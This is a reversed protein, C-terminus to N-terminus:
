DMPLGINYVLRTIRWDGSRRSLMWLVFRELDHAAPGMKYTTALSERTLALAERGGQSLSTHVVKRDIQYIANRLRKDLWEKLEDSDNFLIKWSAPQIKYDGNYATFSKECLGVISGSDGSEWGEAERKLLDAIEDVSDSSRTVGVTTSDGLNQVYGTVKWDDESKTFFWLRETWIPKTEGTQRNVVLGSDITTVIAKKQTGEERALIFPVTRETDYRHVRLDDRLEQEFSSFDEHLVSWGRPDISNHGEYVAMDRAYHSLIIDADGTRKGFKEANIAKRILITEPTEGAHLHVPAAIVLFYLLSLAAISISVRKGM